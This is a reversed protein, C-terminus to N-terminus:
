APVICRADPVPCLMQCETPRLGSCDDCREADIVVIGFSPESIAGVPCEAVCAGCSCCEEMLIKYAM